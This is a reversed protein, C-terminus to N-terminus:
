LTPNALSNTDFTPKTAFFLIKASPASQVAANYANVANNYSTLDERFVNQSQGLQAAFTSLEDSAAISDNNETKFQALANEFNIIATFADATPDQFSGRQAALVADYSQTKKMTETPKATLQAAINVRSIEVAVVDAWAQDVTHSLLTIKRYAHVFVLAIVLVVTISACIVIGTLAARKTM